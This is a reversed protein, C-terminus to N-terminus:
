SNSTIFDIIQQLVEPSQDLLSLSSNYKFVIDNWSKNKLIRINVVQSWAIWKENLWKHFDHIEPKHGIIEIESYLGAQIIDPYTMEDDIYFRIDWESKVLCGFTLEKSGLLETLKLQQQNM